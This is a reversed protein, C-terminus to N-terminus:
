FRFAPCVPQTKLLHDTTFPEYKSEVGAVPLYSIVPKHLDIKGDDAARLVAIGVFSKSISGIEFLTQPSVKM